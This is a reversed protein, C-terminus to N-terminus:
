GNDKLGGLLRAIDEIIIHNIDHNVSEVAFRLGNEVARATSSGHGITVTGNGGLMPAGGYTEPNSRDRISKLGGKLIAAGALRLPNKTFEEKLWHGIAKAVAESTKLVVNGVFGDCVAVDVKGEFLDHGEVNGIFNLGAGDLLRFAERTSDNGKKDEEGISLLGVTPHEVGLIERSYISGMIGFQALMEPLCDPNAGADILIFPKIPTPVPAAIVPRIVGPLTRLKLTTAAVAAGTNGATFVAKAEGEKVLDVARCISSDRKRRVSVAPSEDMGIVESAHVIEFLDKRVINHRDLESRVADEDGVLLVKDVSSIHRAAAVAGSVIERPAHDGGMADVAIRM